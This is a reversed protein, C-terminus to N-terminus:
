SAPTRALLVVQLQVGDQAVAIQVNPPTIGFDTMKFETDAIATITDGQRRAKVQWTLPKTVGKITMSGSLQLSVETGDVYNAPWGSISEIVFEAFPFRNAQLTNQRIFNDRRSEDSTLTRLDVQFSSKQDKYLGERTLWIEGSISTTTGVANSEVPLTALKERVVYTVKSGAPDVVFRFVGPPAVTGGTATPEATGSRAVPQTPIAPAETELDVEDSRLLQVAVATAIAAIVAFVAVAGFLLLRKRTM